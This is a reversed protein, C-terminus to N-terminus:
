ANKHHLLTAKFTDFDQSFFHHFDDRTFIRPDFDCQRMIRLYQARRRNEAPTVEELNEPRYDLKDGNIHDIEMGKTRPGYFTEYMLIHCGRSGLQRMKPYQAGGGTKRSPRNPNFNHKAIQGNSRLFYGDPHAWLIKGDTLEPPVQKCGKSLFWLRTPQTQIPLNKM